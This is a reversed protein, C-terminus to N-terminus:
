QSSAAEDRYLVDYEGDEYSALGVLTEGLDAKLTSELPGLSIGWHATMRTLLSM